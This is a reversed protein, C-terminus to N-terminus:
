YSILVLIVWDLLVMMTAMMAAGLATPEARESSTRSGRPASLESNPPHPTRIHCLAIRGGVGEVLHRHLADAIQTAVGCAAAVEFTVGAIHAIAVDFGDDRGRRREARLVYRRRERM